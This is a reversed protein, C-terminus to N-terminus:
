AAAGHTRRAHSASRELLERLVDMDIDELKKVNVCGVGTSHRGLRALLADRAEFGTPVYLVLAAKRPSFGVLMADVERGSDYRMRCRGFGVIATGWMTAPEGTVEQLLRCVARADDRRRADPLAALFAEVSAATPQTKAEAM